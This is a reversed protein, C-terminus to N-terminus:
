FFPGSSCVKLAAISISVCLFSKHVCHTFPLTPCISLLMSINVSVHKFYLALPFSNYVVPLKAQYETTHPIPPLNLLSPIFTHM